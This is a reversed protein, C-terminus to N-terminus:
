TGTYTAVFLYLQWDITTNGDALLLLMYQGPAWYEIRRGTANGNNTEKYVAFAAVLEQCNTTSQPLSTDCPPGSSYYIGVVGPFSENPGMVLNNYYRHTVVIGKYTWSENTTLDNAHVSVFEDYAYSQLFYKSYQSVIPPPTRTTLLHYEYLSGGAFVLILIIALLLRRSRTILM